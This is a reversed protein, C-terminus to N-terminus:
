ERKGFTIEVTTGAEIQIGYAHIDNLTAPRKVTEGPKIERIHSEAFRKEAPQSEHIPWYPVAEVNVASLLFASILSIPLLVQPHRM